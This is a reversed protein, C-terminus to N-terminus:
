GLVHDRMTQMEGPELKGPKDLITLPTGIKGIDHLLGGRHIIELSKAPLGWPM